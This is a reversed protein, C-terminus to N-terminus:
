KMFSEKMKSALKNAHPSGADVLKKLSPSKGGDKTSSSSSSRRHSRGKDKPFLPIYSPSSGRPQDSSNQGEVPLYGPIDQNFVSGSSKRLRSELDAKDVKSSVRLPHRSLYTDLLAITLYGSHYSNGALNIAPTTHFANDVKILDCGPVRGSQICVLGDSRHGVDEIKKNTIGMSAMGAADSMNHAKSGFDAFSCFSLFEIGLQDPLSFRNSDGAEYLRKMYDYRNKLGLDTVAGTANMGFIKDILGATGKVTIGTCDKGTIAEVMPTGGMPSQM